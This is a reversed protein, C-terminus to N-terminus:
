IGTIDKDLYSIKCIVSDRDGQREPMAVVKFTSVMPNAREGMRLNINSMIHVKPMEIIGTHELGENEDKMLFTAEISYTNSLRERGLIYHLAESKYNFYYDCMVKKGVLGEGFTVIRGVISKPRVRRQINNYDYVYFFSKKTLMPEYKLIIQNKDDIELDQTEAYPVAFDNNTSIMDAALLLNFSTTNLTGNSFEFVTDERNEWVVLPENEFGGRAAVLTAHESLLAIQINEFYLVPEGAELKRSGFQMENRTKVVVRELNKVGLEQLSMM